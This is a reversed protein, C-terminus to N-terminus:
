RKYCARPRLHICYGDGVVAPSPKVPPRPRPLCSGARIFIRLVAAHFCYCDIQMAACHNRGDQTKPKKRNKKHPSVFEIRRGRLDDELDDSDYARDGIFVDPMVDIMYFDFRLQVRKVEHHNAAHM